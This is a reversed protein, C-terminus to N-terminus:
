GLFGSIPFLKEPAFYIAGMDSRPVNSVQRQTLCHGPEPAFRFHDVRPSCKANQGKESM